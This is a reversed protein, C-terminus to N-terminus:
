HQQFFLALSKFDDDSYAAAIRNMVSATRTGARFDRMLRVFEAASRGNISPIASQSHGFTGHCGACAM